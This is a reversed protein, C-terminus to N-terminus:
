GLPYVSINTMIRNIPAYGILRAGFMPKPDGLDLRIEGTPYCGIELKINSMDVFWLGGSDSFHVENGRPGIRIATHDAVPLDPSGSVLSGSAFYKIVEHKVFGSIKAQLPPEFPLIRISLDVEFPVIDGIECHDVLSSAIRTLQRSMEGSECIEKFAQILLSTKSPAKLGVSVSLFRAFRYEVSFRESWSMIESDTVERVCRLIIGHAEAKKIATKTFGSASVGIMLDPRLSRKRGILEEVWKVDQRATHKRCEVFVCFDDGYLAVDVQRMRGKVDPDQIKEDIKVIVNPSLTQYIREVFAEFEKADKHM